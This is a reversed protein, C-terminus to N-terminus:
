VISRYENQNDGAIAKSIRSMAPLTRHSQRSQDAPHDRGREVPELRARRASTLIFSGM